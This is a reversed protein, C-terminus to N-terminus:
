SDILSFILNEMLSIVEFELSVCNVMMTQYSSALTSTFFILSPRQQEILYHQIVQNKRGSPWIFQIPSHSRYQIWQLFRTVDIANGNNPYIQFLIM